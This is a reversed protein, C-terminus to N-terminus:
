FPLYLLVFIFVQICMLQRYKKAFKKKTKLIECVHSVETIFLYNM